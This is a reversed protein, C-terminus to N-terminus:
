GHHMGVEAAAHVDWIRLSADMSSYSALLQEGPVSTVACFRHPLCPPMCCMFALSMDDLLLLVQMGLKAMCCCTADDLDAACVDGSGYRLAEIMATHGRLESLLAGSLTDWLRM